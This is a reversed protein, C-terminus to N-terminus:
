INKDYPKLVTEVANVLEEGSFGKEKIEKLSNYFAMFPHDSKFSENETFRTIRESMCKEITEPTYALGDLSNKKLWGYILVDCIFSRRYNAINNANLDISDSISEYIANLINNYLDTVSKECVARDSGKGWRDCDTKYVMGNVLLQTKILAYLSISFAFRINCTVREKDNNYKDKKILENKIRESESVYVWEAIESCDEAKILYGREGGTEYYRRLYIQACQAALLPDHPEIKYGYFAARDSEIIRGSKKEIESLELYYKGCNKKEILNNVIKRANDLYKKKETVDTVVFSTQHLVRAVILSCDDFILKEYFFLVNENYQNFVNAYFVAGDYNRKKDGGCRFGLLYYARAKLVTSFMANESLLDLIKKIATEVVENDTLADISDFRVEPFLIAFLKRVDKDQSKEIVDLKTKLSLFTLLKSLEDFRDDREFCKDVDQKVLNFSYLLGEYDRVRGSIRRYLNFIKYVLRLTENKRFEEDDANVTSRLFDKLSDMLNKLVQKCNNYNGKEFYTLANIYALNIQAYDDEDAPFRISDRNVIAELLVGYQESLNQKVKEFKEDQDSLKDEYKKMEDKNVFYSALPLALAILTFLISNVALYNQLQDIEGTQGDTNKLVTIIVLIVVIAILFAVASIMLAATKQTERKKTKQAKLRDKENTREALDSTKKGEAKSM